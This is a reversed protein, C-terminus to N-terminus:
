DERALSSKKALPTEAVIARGIKREIEDSSLGLLGSERLLRDWEKLASMKRQTKIQPILTELRRALRADKTILVTNHSSVVAVRSGEELNADSPLTIRRKRDVTREVISM